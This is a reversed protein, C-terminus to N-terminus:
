ILQEKLSSCVKAFVDWPLITAGVQKWLYPKKKNFCGTSENINQAHISVCQFGPVCVVLGV